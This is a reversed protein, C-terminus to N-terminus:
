KKNEKKMLKENRIDGWKKKSEPIMRIWKEVSQCKKGKIGNFLEIEKVYQLLKEM